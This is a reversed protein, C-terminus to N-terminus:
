DPKPYKRVAVGAAEAQQIMDATGRGGPFAVVLDPKFDDLMRKNRIPGAARGHTHWDARVTVCKVNYMGAWCRGLLDAGSAGGQIIAVITERRHIDALVGIVHNWEDSGNYNRGGCVLVRLGV